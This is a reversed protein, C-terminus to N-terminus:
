IEPMAEKLDAMFAALSRTAKVEGQMRITIVTEEPEIDAEEVLIPVWIAAERGLEELTKAM